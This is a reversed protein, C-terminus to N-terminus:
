ECQLRLRRRQVRHEVLALTRLAELSDADDYSRLTVESRRDIQVKGELHSVQQLFWGAETQERKSTAPLPCWDSPLTLTWRVLDQVPVLTYPLEADRLDRPEPTSTLGPLRFSRRGPEGEVVLGEVHAGLQLMPVSSDEFAWFLDSLQYGPLVTAVLERFAVEAQDTGLYSRWATARTGTISLDATGRGIGDVGVVLDVVVQRREQQRSGPTTVLGSANGAVVLASKEQVSPHLWGASGREQTPDLFLLGDAVPDEEGVEVAAEPVAVILHNFQLPSPFDADIHGHISSRILVPYAAIGAEDLLDILLMAKDKCDGWRRELVEDPPTPRYGGIGVQVGVYRVDQRLFRLLVELRERPTELGQILHRAQTRVEADGRRVPQLLDQYWGAVAPWSDVAGWAYLLEPARPWDDAAPVWSSEIVLKGPTEDVRLLQSLLQRALAEVEAGEQQEVRPPADVGALHWRWGQTPGRVEIRLREIPDREAVFLRGADFYPREETRYRVELVSGVPVSPFHVVQAELSSHLAGGGSVHTRDQHRSRVKKRQGTPTVAVAELEELTLNEDLIVYYPSWRELDGEEDLRVRITEDTQTLGNAAVTVLVTKELVTAAHVPALSLCFLALWLWVRGLIGGRDVLHGDRGSKCGLRQRASAESSRLWCWRRRM